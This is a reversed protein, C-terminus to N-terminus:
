KHVVYKSQLDGRSWLFFSFMLYVFISSQVTPQNQKQNQTVNALLNSITERYKLNSIILYISINIETYVFPFNLFVLFQLNSLSTSYLNKNTIFYWIDFISIILIRLESPRGRHSLQSIIRRCHQLGPNSGQTPFIGRLISLSGVRTNQGPSNWPSYLGHPWFSFKVAPFSLLCSSFPIVSSSVIPRCWRNSPCSDSYAGPSPSPCPLGAHQLGHPWLTLYSQAVSPCCVESKTFFHFFFHFILFVGNKFWCLLLQNVCSDSIMIFRSLYTQDSVDQM